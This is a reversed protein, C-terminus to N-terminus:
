RRVFLSTSAPTKPQEPIEEEKEQVRDGYMRRLLAKNDDIFTTIKSRYFSFLYLSYNTSQSNETKTISNSIHRRPIFWVNLLTGFHARVITNKAELLRWSRPTWFYGQGHHLVFFKSCIWITQGQHQWNCRWSGNFINVLDKAKSQIHQEQIIAIYNILDKSVLFGGHSKELLTRRVIHPTICYPLLRFFFFYIM